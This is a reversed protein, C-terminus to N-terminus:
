KSPWRGKLEEPTLFRTAIPAPKAARKSAGGPTVRLAPPSSQPTPQPTAADSGSDILDEFLLDVLTSSSPARAPAPEAGYMAQVDDTIKHPSDGVVDNFQSLAEALEPFELATGGSCEHGLSSPKVNCYKKLTRVFISKQMKTEGTASQFANFVRDKNVKQGFPNIKGVKCGSLEKDTLCDHLWAAVPHLGALKHEILHVTEYANSIYERNFKYSYLFAAIDDVGDLMLKTISFALARDRTFEDSMELCLFRREREQIPIPFKDNSCIINHTLNRVPGAEHYKRESQYVTGTVLLKLADNMEHYDFSKQNFKVEDMFCLVCEEISGNFKGLIARKDSFTKSWPEGVIKRLIEVFSTSKGSGPPGTIVLASTTKIGPEQVLAACWQLLWDATAADGGCMRYRIHHQFEKSAKGNPDGVGRAVGPATYTNFYPSNEAGPCGTPMFCTDYSSRPDISESWVFGFKIAVLEQRHKRIKREKAAPTDDDVRMVDDFGRAIEPFDADDAGDWLRGALTQFASLKQSQIATGSNFHKSPAARLVLPDGLTLLVCSSNVAAVIAARAARIRSSPGGTAAAYAARAAARVVNADYLTLATQDATAMPDPAPTPQPTTYM